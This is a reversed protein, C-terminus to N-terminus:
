VAFHSSQHQKQQKGWRADHHSDHAISNNQSGTRKTRKTKRARCKIKIIKNRGYSLLTPPPPALNKKKRNHMMLLGCAPDAVTSLLKKRKAVLLSYVHSVLKVLHGVGTITQQALFLSCFLFAVGSEVDYAMEGFLARRTIYYVVQYVM